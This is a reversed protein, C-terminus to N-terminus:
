IGRKIVRRGEDRIEMAIREKEKDIKVKEVCLRGKRIRNNRKGRKAQCIRKINGEKNGSM